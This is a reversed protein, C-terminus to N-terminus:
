AAPTFEVSALLEVYLPNSPEDTITISGVLQVSAQEPITITTATEIATSDSTLTVDLATPAGNLYLTVTASDGGGVGNDLGELKVRLNSITGGPMVVWGGGGNAVGLSGGDLKRASSLLNTSITQPAGDGTTTPAMFGHILQAGGGGGAPASKMRDGERVWTEGEAPLELALRQETGLVKVSM